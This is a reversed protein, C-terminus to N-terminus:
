DIGIQVKITIVVCPGESEIFTEAPRMVNIALLWKMKNVHRVPRRYVTHIFINMSVPKIKSNELSM